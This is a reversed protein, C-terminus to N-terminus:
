RRESYLEFECREEDEIDKCVYCVECKPLGLVKKMLGMFIGEIILDTACFDDDLLEDECYCNEIHFRIFKPYSDLVVLKTMFVEELCDLTNGVLVHFRDSKSGEINKDVEPILSEGVVEGLRAFMKEASEGWLDILSELLDVYQSKTSLETYSKGLLSGLIEEYNDSWIRKLANNVLNIYKLTIM